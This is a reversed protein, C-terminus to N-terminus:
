FHSIDEHHKNSTASLRLVAELHDDTLLNRTRSKLSHQAMNKM